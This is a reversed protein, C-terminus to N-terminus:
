IRKLDHEIQDSRVVDHNGIVVATRNINGAIVGGAIRNLKHQKRRIQLSTLKVVGNMYYDDKINKGNWLLTLRM